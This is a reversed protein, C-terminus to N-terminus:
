LTLTMSSLDISKISSHFAAQLSLHVMLEVQPYISSLALYSSHLFIDACFLNCLADQPGKVSM